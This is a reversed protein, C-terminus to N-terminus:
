GFRASDTLGSYKGDLKGLEESLERLRNTSADAEPDPTEAFSIKVPNTTLPTKKPFSYVRSQEVNDYNM